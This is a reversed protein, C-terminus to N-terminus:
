DITLQFNMVIASLIINGIDAIKSMFMRRQKFIFVTTSATSIHDVQLSASLQGDYGDAKKIRENHRNVEKTSIQLFPEVKNKSPKQYAISSRIRINEGIQDLSGKQRFGRLLRKFFPHKSVLYSSFVCEHADISCTKLSTFLSFGQSPFYVTKLAMERRRFRKDRSEMHDKM